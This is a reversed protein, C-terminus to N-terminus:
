KRETTVRTVTVPHDLLRGGQAVLKLTAGRRKPARLMIEVAVDPRGMMMAM